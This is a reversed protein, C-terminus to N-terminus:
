GLQTARILVLITVFFTITLTTREARIATRVRETLPGRPQAAHVPAAEGIWRPVRNRSSRYIEGLREELFAEEYRVVVSYFIFFGACIAAGGAPGCTAIGLGTQMWINAIYLPNRTLEYPGTYVLKEVVASSERATPGIHAISWLRIAPGMLLMGLGLGTWVSLPGTLLVLALSVPATLLGRNRFLFGGAQEFALREPSRKSAAGCSNTSGM